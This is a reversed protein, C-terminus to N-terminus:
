RGGAGDRSAGANAAADNQVAAVTQTKAPEAGVANPVAHKAVGIALSEFTYGRSRGARVIARVAPM